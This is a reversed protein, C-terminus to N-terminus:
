LLLASRITVPSSTFSHGFSKYMFAVTTLKVVDPGVACAAQYVNCSTDNTTVRVPNPLRRPLHYFKIVWEYDDIYHFMEEM